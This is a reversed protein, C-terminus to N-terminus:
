DIHDQESSAHVTSELCLTLGRRWVSDPDKPIWLSVFCFLLVLVLMRQATKTYYQYCVLNEWVYEM